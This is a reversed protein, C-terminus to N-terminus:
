STSPARPPPMMDHATLDDPLTLWAHKNATWVSQEPKPFTPDAFGGVAVGILDPMREPEWYLTSGCDPCFHFLVQTGVVSNRIFNKSKGHAVKVAERRFFAAISFVSGTRRQCDACHCMSVRAPEGACRVQLWGCTCSAFRQIEPLSM